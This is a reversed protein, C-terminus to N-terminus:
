FEEPFIKFSQVFEWLCAECVDFVYDVGDQFGQSLYGPRYSISQYYWDKSGNGLDKACTNGCKNCITDLPVNIIKTEETYTRM